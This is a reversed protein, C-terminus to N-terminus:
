CCTIYGRHLKPIKGERRMPQAVLEQRNLSEKTNECVIDELMLFTITLFKQRYENFYISIFMFM